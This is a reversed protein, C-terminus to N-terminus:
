NGGKVDLSHTYVEIALKDAVGRARDDIMPSIVLLREAKRQHKNEYFEAKRKFQYVEGRSLSSKIECLILTGNQVIVDLEVQDPQGFVYGTEDYDQYNLVQVGFTKELIAALGNRFAQESQLGWRAGLAGISSEHKKAIAMIEEHICKFEQCSEDWRRQNEDWKRNQEDWKHDQEEWKRNQENWRHNQENWRRNQEDWKRNQEDWKRNEEDWKRNQEVKEEDWKRANEEQMRDLRALLKEFRDETQQKPAFEQRALNLVLEQVSIDTKIVQPLERKILEIVDKQSM